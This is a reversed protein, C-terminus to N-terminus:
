HASERQFDIPKLFWYYHLVQLTYWVFSAHCQTCEHVVIPWLYRSDRKSPSQLLVQLCLINAMLFPTSILSYQLITVIATTLPICVYNQITQYWSNIFNMLWSNTGPLFLISNGGKITTRQCHELRPPQIYIVAVHTRGTTTHEEHLYPM